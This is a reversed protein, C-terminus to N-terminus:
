KTEATGTGVEIDMAEDNEGVVDRGFVIVCLGTGRCSTVPAWVTHSM